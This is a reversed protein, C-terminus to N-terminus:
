YPNVPTVTAVATEILQRALDRATGQYYTVDFDIVKKMAIVGIEAQPRKEDRVVPINVIGIADTDLSFQNVLDLFSLAQDNTLGYLTVRVRDQALQGHSMTRGLYPSSAIGRTETPVVHVTGYPPEQNQPALFSPFLTVGPNQFTLWIPDYSVLKLWAPLSNSVVLTTDLLQGGNEVLQSELAPYVADGQYTFVSAAQFFDSRRTFAFRVSEWTGVFMVDPAIEDFTQVPGDTTLTVRNVALTEDELRRLDTSVHLSGSVTVAGVALWFVYGDLPLVQRVYKVFTVKQDRSLQRAGQLDANGQSTADVNEALSAM